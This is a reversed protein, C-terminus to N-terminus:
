HGAAAGRGLYAEIVKPNTRIAKPLGEAIKEGHDLVTIHDSIGMVVRMDHEILLVTIGLEDRIRRILATMEETEKPNMGAAPEDLLLLKPRSAVARAIELLRQKGYPLNAALENEMGALDVFALLERARQEAAAEEERVQRTKFLGGFFTGHLHVHMGVLINELTTLSKYLRINQFTRALGAVVMDNPRAPRTVGIRKILRNYWAPRIINLLLAGVFGLLAVAVSAVGEVLGTDGGVAMLFYIALAIFPITPLVLLIPERGAGTPPSILPKGDLEITGETPAYIGAIVYFFTTKRASEPREDELDITLGPNLFALERLALVLGQMLLLLAGLPIALKFPYIPIAENDLAFERDRWSALFFDWGYLLLAGAFLFLFVSGLLNVAAQAKRPLRSYFVDVGVHSKEKLAYAGTLVYLLGFLLTSTLHAWRTPANFFYRMVVEYTLILVCVLTIWAALRGVWVAVAEVWSLWRLLANM